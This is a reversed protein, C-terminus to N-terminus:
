ESVVDGQRHLNEEEDIMELHNKKTLKKNTKAKEM